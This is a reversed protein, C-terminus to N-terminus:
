APFDVTISFIGDEYAARIHGHMRETLEKAIALGLGTGGNSRARDATYFREFVMKVDEESMEDSANSFTFVYQKKVKKLEARYSGRGHSLSNSIINSIVRTLADTDATLPMATDEIEVEPEEGRSVFDNYYMALTRELVSRIDAPEKKLEIGGSEMRAYYFLQDLLRRVVDQREEIIDLYEAKQADSLSADRLMGTYGGAATLPTRLDHSINTISERFSRNLREAAIKQERINKVLTNTQEILPDFTKQGVENRLTLNTDCRSIDRVQETLSKVSKKIRCIYIVLAAITIILVSIIIYAM